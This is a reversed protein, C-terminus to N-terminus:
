MQRLMDVFYQQPTEYKKVVNEPVICKKSISNDYYEKMKKISPCSSNFTSRYEDKIETLNSLRELEDIDEMDLKAGMTVINKDHKKELYCDHIPIRFLYLEPYEGRGVIHLKDGSGVLMDYYGEYYGDKTDCANKWLGDLRHTYFYYILYAPHFWLEGYQDIGIKEGTYSDWKYKFKFAVNDPIEVNTIPDLHCQRLTKYYITTREDYDPKTITTPQVTLRKINKMRSNFTHKNCKITNLDAFRKESIISMKFVIIYDHM